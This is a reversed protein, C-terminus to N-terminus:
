KKNFLQIANTIPIYLERHENKDTIQINDEDHHSFNMSLLENSFDM